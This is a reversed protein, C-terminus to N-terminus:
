GDYDTEKETKRGSKSHSDLHDAHMCVVLVSPGLADRLLIRPVYKFSSLPFQFLQCAAAM